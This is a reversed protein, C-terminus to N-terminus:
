ILQFLFTAVNQGHNGENHVQCHIITSKLTVSFCSDTSDLAINATIVKFINQILQFNKRNHRPFSFDLKEIKSDFQECGGKRVFNV